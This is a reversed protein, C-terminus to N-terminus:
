LEERAKRRERVIMIGCFASGGGLIILDSWYFRWHPKEAEPPTGTMETQSEMEYGEPHRFEAAEPQKRKEAARGLLILVIVAAGILFIKDASIRRRVKEAREKHKEFLIIEGKM